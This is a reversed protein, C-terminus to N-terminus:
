NSGQNKLSSFRYGISIRHTDGLDGFPMFAYDIGINMLHFGAGAAFGSGAGEDRGIQYGTRLSFMELPMWELGPQVSAIGDHLLLDSDIIANLRGMREFNMRYALGPKFNLPLPDGEDAFKLEGGLNLLSMSLSLGGEERLDWVLGLDTAGTAASETELNSSIFKLAAGYHLRGAGMSRKNGWGLSVAMDRTDFEGLDPRDADGATASRKEIDQVGFLTVGLGFSGHDRSPHAYGIFQQATDKFYANYSVQVEPREVRALGAPNYYIATADDVIPALAGAMGPGRAGAGIRLFQGGSTGKGAAILGSSCIMVVMLAATMRFFRKMVGEECKEISKNMTKMTITENVNRM